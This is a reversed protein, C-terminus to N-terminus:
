AIVPTFGAELIVARLEEAGLQAEHIELRRNALDIRVQAAPEAEKLVLTISSVCHGCTMDAIQFAIM